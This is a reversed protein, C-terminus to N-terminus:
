KDGMLFTLGVGLIQKYQIRPKADLPADTVSDFETAIKIDNDYLLQTIFSAVLWDNVKMTVANQWNVDVNGFNEDYATFLEIKTDYNVNKFIDKKFTIKLFSGLEARSTKGTGLIINGNADKKAPDVGYDGRDAFSQIGVFTMKGTFPSYLLSFHKAPKWELATSITLFGPAMFDSIKVESGDDQFDVGKYFQSKFDILSSIYLKGDKKLKYGFKSSFIIKDDNKRLGIKGQDIIGYGLEMINEFTTRRKAYSAFANIGANFAISNEGGAAWNKLTTQTFTLTTKTGKKWYTTDAVSTSDISQATVYNTIALLILSTFVLKNM